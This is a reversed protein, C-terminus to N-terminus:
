VVAGRLSEAMVLVQRVLKNVGKAVDRPGPGLMYAPSSVLRNELDVVIDDVTSSEHTVNMDHLKKVTLEDSGITLKPKHELEMSGLVKAAIVPSICLFGMPKHQNYVDKILNEVSPIVTSNVGEMAFNSLNLAAGFGGVFIVADLESLNVMALDHVNGRTIRASEVLVNRTEHTTEGTLHNVVITQNINPAMAVINVNAQNLSHLTFVAEQIETGDQFGCGSLVVGIKLM